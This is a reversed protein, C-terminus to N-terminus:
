ECGREIQTVLTIVGEAGQRHPYDNVLVLFYMIIYSSISSRIILVVSWKIEQGSLYQLKLGLCFDRGYFSYLINVLLFLNTVVFLSFSLNRMCM